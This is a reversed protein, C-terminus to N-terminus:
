FVPLSFIIIIILTSSSKAIQNLHHPHNQHHRHHNKISYGTVPFFYALSFHIEKRNIVKIDKFYM